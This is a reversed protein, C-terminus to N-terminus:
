QKSRCKIVRGKTRKREPRAEQFLTGFNNVRKPHGQHLNKKIPDIFHCVIERRVEILGMERITALARYVARRSMRSLKMLKHIDYPIATRGDSAALEVLILAINLTTKRPLNGSEIVQQLYLDPDTITEIKMM